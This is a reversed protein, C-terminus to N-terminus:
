ETLRGSWVPPFRLRATAPPKCPIQQRACACRCVGHRGSSRSRVPPATALLSSAAAFLGMLVALSWPGRTLGRM